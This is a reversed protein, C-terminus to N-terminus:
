VFDTKEPSESRASDLGDPLGQKLLRGSRVLASGVLGGVILMPIFYLSYEEDVEVPHVVVTLFMLLEAGPFPCLSQGETKM